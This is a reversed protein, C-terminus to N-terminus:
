LILRIRLVKELFISVFFISVILISGVAAIIPDLRSEM